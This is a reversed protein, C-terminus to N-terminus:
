IGKLELQMIQLEYKGENIDASLKKLFEEDKDRPYIDRYMKIIICARTYAKGKMMELLRAHMVRSTIQHIYKCDQVMKNLLNKMQRMLVKIPIGFQPNTPTEQPKGKDTVAEEITHKVNENIENSTNNKEAAMISETILAAVRKQASDDNETMNDKNHLACNQPLNGEETKKPKSDHKNTLVNEKQTLENNLLIVDDDASARLNQIVDEKNTEVDNHTLEEIEMQVENQTSDNNPTLGKQAVNDDQTM